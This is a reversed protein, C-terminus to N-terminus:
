HGTHDHKVPKGDKLVPIQGTEWSTRMVNVLEGALLALYVNGTSVVGVSTFIGLFICLWLLVFMFALARRALPSSTWLGNYALIALRIIGVILLSWGVQEESVGVLQSVWEMTAYSRSISFTSEPQVLAYGFLMSALTLIWELGKSTLSKFLHSGGEKVWFIIV